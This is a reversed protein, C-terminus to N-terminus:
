IYTYQRPTDAFRSCEGNPGGRFGICLTSLSQRNLNIVNMMAVYAGPGPSLSAQYMRLSRLNGGTPPTFMTSVTNLIWEAEVGHEIELERLGTALIQYPPPGDTWEITRINRGLRCREIHSFHDM